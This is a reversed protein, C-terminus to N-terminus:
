YLLHPVGDPTLQTDSEAAAHGIESLPVATGDAISALVEGMAADHTLPQAWHRKRSPTIAGRDIAADVKREIDTAKM